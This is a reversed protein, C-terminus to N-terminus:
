KYGALENDRCLAKNCLDHVNALKLKHGNENHLEALIECFVHRLQEIRMHDKNLYQSMSM